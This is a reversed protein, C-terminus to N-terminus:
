GNEQEQSVGETKEAYFTDKHERVTVKGLAAEFPATFDECENGVAGLVELDIDGEPSIKFVIKKVM